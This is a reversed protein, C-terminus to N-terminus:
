SHYGSRTLTASRNGIDLCDNVGNAGAMTDPVAEDTGACMGRAILLAGAHVADCCGRIRGHRHLLVFRGVPVNKDPCITGDLARRSLLPARWSVLIM